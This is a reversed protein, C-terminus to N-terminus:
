DARARHWSSTTMSPRSGVAGGFRDVRCSVSGIRCNLAVAAGTVGWLTALAIGAIVTVIVSVVEAVSGPVPNGAARSTDALVRRVGYFTTSVLLLRVLPVSDRFPEGFFAPVLFGATAFIVGSVSLLIVTTGITAKWMTEVAAQPTPRQTVFPVATLGITQAVFRPLNTFSVAAIYYGLAVPPLIIAVLAQDIRFAEVPSAAGLNVEPWFRDDLEHGEDEAIASPSARNLQRVLDRAVVGALPTLAVRSIAWACAYILLGSADALWLGAAVVAFLANPAVRVLNMWGFAGLGQFCALCTELAIGAPVVLLLVLASM